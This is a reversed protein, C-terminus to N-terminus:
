AELAHLRQRLEEHQNSLRLERANLLEEEAAVREERAHVAEVWSPSSPKQQKFEAKTFAM